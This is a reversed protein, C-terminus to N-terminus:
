WIDEDDAWSAGAAVSVTEESEDDEIGDWELDDFDLSKLKRGRKEVQNRLAQSTKRWPANRDDNARRHYVRNDFKPVSITGHKGSTYCLPFGRKNLKWNTPWGTDEDIFDWVDPDCGGFKCYGVWTAPPTASRIRGYIVDWATNCFGCVPYNTYHKIETPNSM